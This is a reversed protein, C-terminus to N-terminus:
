VEQVQLPSTCITNIHKLDDQFLLLKNQVEEKAQERWIGEILSTLAEKM